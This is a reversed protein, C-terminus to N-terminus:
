PQTETTTSAITTTSTSAPAGWTRGASSYDAYVMKLFGLIALWVVSAFGTAELGRDEKSLAMYWPLLQNAVYVTWFFCSTLFLRPFVRYSDILEAWDLHLKKNM